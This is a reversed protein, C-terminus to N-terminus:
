DPVVIVPVESESLLGEVTSDEEKNQISTLYEHKGVFVYDVSEQQAAAIVEKVHDGTKIILKHEIDRTLVALTSKLDQLRGDEQGLALVLLEADVQRAIRAAERLIEEVDGSGDYAILFKYNKQITVKIPDIEGKELWRPAFYSIAFAGSPATTLISLVSIALIYEGHPLGLALPIRGIAAQVTAKAMQGAAMFHREQMNLSSGWTSVYM